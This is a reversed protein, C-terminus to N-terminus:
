IQGEYEEATLLNDLDAPDSIELVAIWGEGYPDQNVLEPSDLLAENVQVVKGAVPAYIDSVSKVSEINGLVDGKELEAGEQPLDVFVIDGLQEQAHDTIGVYCQNGEIRLWEHSETYKLESPNM